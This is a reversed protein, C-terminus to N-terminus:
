LVVEFHCLDDFEQDTLLVEDQDWNGGWRLHVGLSAACAMIVGAVYCAQMSDYSIKGESYKVLDVAMSPYHNHKSLPWDLKSNGDKFAQHQSAEDRFGCVLAFDVVKIAELLVQQLPEVLQGLIEQSRKGFTPM